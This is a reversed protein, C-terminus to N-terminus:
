LSLNGPVQTSVIKLFYIKNQFIWLGISSNCTCCLFIMKKKKKLGEPNNPFLNDIRHGVVGSCELLYKKCVRLSWEFQVLQVWLARHTRRFFEVKSYNDTTTM